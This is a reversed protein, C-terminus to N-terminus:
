STLSAMLFLTAPPFALAFNEQNTGALINCVPFPITVSRGNKIRDRYVPEDFDWLEGLCIVFILIGEVLLTSLNM